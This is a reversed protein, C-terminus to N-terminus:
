NYWKNIKQKIQHSPAIIPSNSPNQSILQQSLKISSPHGLTFRTVYKPQLSNKSPSLASNVLRNGVFISSNRWCSGRTAFESMKTSRKLLSTRFGVENQVRGTFNRKWFEMWCDCIMLSIDSCTTDDFIWFFTWDHKNLYNWDYKLISHSNSKKPFEKNSFHNSFDFTKAMASLIQKGDFDADKRIFAFSQGM